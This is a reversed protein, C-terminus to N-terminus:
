VSKCWVRLPCEVHWSVVGGGGEGVDEDWAAGDEAGEVTPEGYSLAKRWSFWIRWAAELRPAAVKQIRSLM